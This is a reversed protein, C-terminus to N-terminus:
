FYRLLRIAGSGRRQKNTKKLSQIADSCDIGKSMFLKLKSFFSHRSQNINWGNCLSGIISTFFVRVCEADSCVVSSYTVTESWYPLLFRPGAVHRAVEALLRRRGYGEGLVTRQQGYGEVVRHRQPIRRRRVELGSQGVRQDILM